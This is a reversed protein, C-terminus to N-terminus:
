RKKRAAPKRPAPKAAARASKKKAAPKAKGATSARSAAPKKPAGAKASGAFGPGGSDTVAAHCRKCRWTRSELDFSVATWDCATCRM